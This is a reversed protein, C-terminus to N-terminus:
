VDGLSCVDVEASKPSSVPFSFHSKFSRRRSQKRGKFYPSLLSTAAALCEAPRIIVKIVKTGDETAAAAAKIGSM